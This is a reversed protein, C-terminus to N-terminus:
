NLPEPEALAGNKRCARNRQHLMALQHEEYLLLAQQQEKYPTCDLPQQEAPDANLDYALCHRDQMSIELKIGDKHISSVSQGSFLFLYKRRLHEQYLSEGQFRQSDHAIGLADLVTPVLDVHSTAATIRRPPFLEPHYLLAPVRYNEEFNGRGHGFNGPHEGFAEGHDGVIIVLTREILHQAKLFGFIREIQNDLLRLNEYYKSLDSKPSALKLQACCDLYPSHPVFSVYTAVFPAANTALAGVRELFFDVAQAEDLAPPHLRAARRRAPLEQYGWMASFGAHEFFARPFFWDLSGPTILEARYVAPLYSRLSPLYIDGGHEFAPIKPMCYLGSFISFLSRASSNATSYHRTLSYGQQNLRYLFPMAQQTYGDLDKIPTFARSQSVSELILFIVNYPGRGAAAPLYPRRVQSAPQSVFLSTELATVRSPLSGALRRPPQRRLARASHWFDSGLYFLPPLRVPPPLRTGPPFYCLGLIVVSLAALGRKMWRSWSRRRPPGQLLAWLLLPSLIFGLESPRLFELTQLPAPNFLNEIFLQATVGPYGMVLLTAHAQMLLGWALLLLLGGCWGLGRLIRRTRASSNTGYRGGLWCLGHVLVALSLALAADLGLPRLLAQEDIAWADDLRIDIQARYLFSSILLTGYTRWALLAPTPNPPPFAITM